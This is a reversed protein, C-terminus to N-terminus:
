RKAQESIYADVPAATYAGDRLMSLTVHPV